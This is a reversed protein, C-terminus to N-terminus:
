NVTLTGVMGLQRHNGMSCYYEYTGAKDAVFEITDSDGVTMMRTAANFEDLRWDHMGESVNLTIRVTDGENVEINKVSYKFNSADLTFEKVESQENLEPTDMRGADQSGELSTGAASDEVETPAVSNNRFLFFGAVILVVVIILSIIKSM